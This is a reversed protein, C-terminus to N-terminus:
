RVMKASPDAPVHADDIEAYRKIHPCSIPLRWSNDSCITKKADLKNPKAATKRAQGLDIRYPGGGPILFASRGAVTLPYLYPRPGRCRAGPTRSFAVSKPKRRPRDTAHAVHPLLEVLEGHALQAPAEADCAALRAALRAVRQGGCGGRVAVAQRAHGNGPDLRPHRLEGRRQLAAPQRDSDGHLWAARAIIPAPRRSHRPHPRLPPGPRPTM